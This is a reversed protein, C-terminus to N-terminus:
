PVDFAMSVLQTKIHLKLTLGLCFKPGHSSGNVSGGRHGNDSGSISATRGGAPKPKSKGSFMKMFGSREGKPPLPGTAFEGVDGAAASYMQKETLHLNYNLPNKEGKRRVLGGVPHSTDAFEWPKSKKKKKGSSDSGGGRM